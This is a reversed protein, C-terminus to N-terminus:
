RSPPGLWETMAAVVGAEFSDAGGRLLQRLTRADTAARQDAKGDSLVKRIADAMSSASAREQFLFPYVERDLLANPLVVRDMKVLRRGVAASLGSAIYCAVGPSGYLATQLTVTGSTAMVAHSGVLAAFLGGEDSRVTITGGLGSAAICASIRNNLTPLTPLQVKLDPMDDRLMSIAALMPNLLHEIESRRSGPLVTLQPSADPDPMGAAHGVVDYAPNFAEPHSIFRADLGLPLFNDPEFPFLCLMGDFAHAFRNGRWRGWAWITPAVTHIMPPPAETGALRRRLREALRVAFGKADVTVIIDPKEAVILEVLMDLRRSLRPYARVAAGFGFVTLEEMPFHSKLGQERMAPGGTGIWRKKGYRATIARMLSAGLRDGSPEGALIFIPAAM